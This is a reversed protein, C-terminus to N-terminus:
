RWWLILLVILMLISTKPWIIIRSTDKCLRYNFKFTSHNQLKAFSVSTYHPWGITRSTDKILRYHFKLTQCVNKHSVSLLSISTKLAGKLTNKLSSNIIHPNQLGFPWVLFEFIGCFYYYARLGLLPCRSVSAKFKKM